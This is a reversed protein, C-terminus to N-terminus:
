DLVERITKAIDGMAIPKMLFAQIGMEKAKDENMLDSHGTCLIVPIDPRIAMMENAMMQGTMRPMTQDTIILDYNDPQAKFAELAEISSTRTSVEYGLLEIM